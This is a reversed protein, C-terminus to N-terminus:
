TFERPPPCESSSPRVSLPAFVYVTNGVKEPVFASHVPSARYDAFITHLNHELSGIENNLQSM